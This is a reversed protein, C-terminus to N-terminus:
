ECRLSKTMLQHVRNGNRLVDLSLVPPLDVMTPIYCVKYVLKPFAIFVNPVILFLVCGCSSSTKSTTIFEENNIPICVYKKMPMVMKTATFPCKFTHDSDEAEMEVIDDDDSRKKPELIECVKQYRISQEPRFNALRQKVNEKLRTTTGEENGETANDNTRNYEDIVAKCSTDMALTTACQKASEKLRLKWIALKEKDIKVGNQGFTEALCELQFFCANINDSVTAIALGGGNSSSSSYSAM